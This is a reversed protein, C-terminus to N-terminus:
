VAITFFVSARSEGAVYLRHEKAISNFKHSTGFADFCLFGHGFTEFDGAGAFHHSRVGTAAMQQLALIGFAPTPKAFSRNHVCGIGVADQLIQREAM